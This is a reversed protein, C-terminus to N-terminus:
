TWITKIIKAPVSVFVQLAVAEVLALYGRILVLRAKERRGTFLAENYEERMDKVVPLFVRQYTKPSCVFEAIKLVFSGPAVTLNSSKTTRDISRRIFTGAAVEKPYERGFADREIFSAEVVGAVGTVGRPFVKAAEDPPWFKTVVAPRGPRHTFEIKDGIKFYRPERGSM